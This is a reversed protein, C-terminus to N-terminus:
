DHGKSGGSRVNEDRQGPTVIDRVPAKKSKNHKQELRANEGEFLNVMSELADSSSKAAMTGVELALGRMLLYRAAATDSSGMIRAVRSVRELMDPPVTLVIRCRPAKEMVQAKMM